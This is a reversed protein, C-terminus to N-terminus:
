LVFSAINFILFMETCIFMSFHVSNYGSKRDKCYCLYAGRNPPYKPSKGGGVLALYNCRFLMEVHGIGGDAFDICLCICINVCHVALTQQVYYLMLM